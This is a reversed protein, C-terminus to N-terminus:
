RRTRREIGRRVEHATMSVRNDVDAVRRDAWAIEWVAQKALRSPVVGSLHVVRDVVECRLDVAGLYPHRTVAM